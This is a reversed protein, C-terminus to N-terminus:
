DGAPTLTGVRAPAAKGTRLGYHVILEELSDALAFDPAWGVASRIKGFDAVLLMRDVPRVRGPDMQITLPRALRERLLDVIQKVSHAVGSGVNYVQLGSSSRAVALVAKAIDRTNIYDRRREIIGLPIEDSARLSEFIHPIVHPNTENPGIANFIRLITTTLGTRAFYERALVEGRAKSEGYVDDPELPTADERCPSDSPAYVAGSSAFVVSRVGAAECAAFLNQTGEVNIAHTEAPRAVCDPIFHLAALHVVHDPRSRAVAGSLASGERVDGQVVSVRSDNPLLERKGRVFSDYVVVEHEAAVLCAVLASGLFGAGGTVFFKM